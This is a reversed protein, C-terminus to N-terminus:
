PSTTMRIVIRWRAPAGLTPRIVSAGCSARHHAPFGQEVPHYRDEKGQHKVGGHRPHQHQPEPARRRVHAGDGLHLRDFGDDDVFAPYGFLQFPQARTVLLLAPLLEFPDLLELPLGFGCLTAPGLLFPPQELEFPQLALALSLVHRRLAFALALLRFAELLDRALALRLRPPDLGQLPLLRVQRRPPRLLPLLERHQFLLAALLRLLFASELLLRLRGSRLPM